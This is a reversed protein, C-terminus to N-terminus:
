GAASPLTDLRARSMRLTPANSSPPPSPVTDREVTKTAQALEARQSRYAWASVPGIVGWQTNVERALREQERRMPWIWLAGVFLASTLAGVFGCLLYGVM